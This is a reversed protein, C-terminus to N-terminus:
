GSLMRSIYEMFTSPAVTGCSVQKEKISNKEGVYKTSYTFMEKLSCNLGCDSVNREPELLM